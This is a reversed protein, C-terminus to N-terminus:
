RLLNYVDSLQVPAARDDVEVVVLYGDDGDAMALADILKQQDSLVRMGHEDWLESTCLCGLSPTQPYWVCGKYYDPDITTGHAIIERRGIQGAYFSGYIAFDAAWDPPLLRKYLDESWATDTTTPDRLFRAPSAEYPMLMQINPTPGLFRSQSRGIGNLVYLGQPTNGDHLYYPLDTISRALQPVAFYSSDPNRLFTGDGQRIVVLGPYDRNRRQISYVVIRGPLFAPSFLDEMPPTITPVGEHNLERRLLDITVDKCTDMRLAIQKRILRRDATDAPDKMLYEASLAFLRPNPTTTLFRAVQTRFTGPYNTYILELYAQQFGPSREEMHDWVRSIRDLTYPTRFRVLEMGWFPDSWDDETSDTLPQALEKRIYNNLLNAYFEARRTKSAFSSYIGTVPTSRLTDGAPTNQARAALLGGAWLVLLLGTRKM